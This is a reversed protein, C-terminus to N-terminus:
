VSASSLEVPVPEAVRPEPRSPTEEVPRPETDREAPEAPENAARKRLSGNMWSKLTAAAKLACGIWQNRGVTFTEVHDKYEAGWFQKYHLENTGFDYRTVGRTYGEEFMQRYLISGTRYQNFAEVYSNALVYRTGGATLALVFSIPQGNAFLLWCDVSDNPSLFERTLRNWFTQQISTVFRPKGRADKILWSQQEVQALAAFLEQSEAESPRRYHRLETAFERNLKRDYYEIKKAFKKGLVEDRYQDWTAPVDVIALPDSAERRLFAGSEALVSLMGQQADGSQTWPGLQIVSWGQRMVFAGLARGVERECSPDSLIARWPQYYGAMSHVKLPGIKPRGVPLVGCLVGDTNRYVAVVDLSGTWPKQSGITEAWISYWEPGFLRLEPRTRTLLDRWDCWLRANGDLKQRECRFM